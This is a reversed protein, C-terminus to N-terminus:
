IEIKNIVTEKSKLYCYVAILGLKVVVLNVGDCAVKGDTMREVVM